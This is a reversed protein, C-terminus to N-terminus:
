IIYYIYVGYKSLYLSPNSSKLLPLFLLLSFLFMKHNLGCFIKETNCNQVPPLVSGRETLVHFRVVFETGPRKRKM